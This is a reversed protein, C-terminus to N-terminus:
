RWVFPPYTEIDGRIFRALLMAQMHWLLGIAMKEKVFPHEIEEQKREQYATLLTKRADDKLIVAGTESVTFDNSHIQGRNILSLALRDAIFSRFEEIMDLALSPRGPRDTQLFGAAPDLGCSELASRIDHTLLTYLFSLLCNIRDLPPRRNRGTFRFLPDPSTICEDFVDFYVKAAEGEIGRIREQDTEVQLRKICGALLHQAHKLKVANVKEPHDRLARALTIRANGIKGVVFARALIATQLYNDALRYQARRLLINGRTAAQMQSLFKGYQSLFTITVGTESCHGFLYPSCTVSGFCIIGDLMHLPIRVKVEKDIKIVACEGEKSLYAGQTTVFLTNLYKKM